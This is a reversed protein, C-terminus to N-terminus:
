GKGSRRSPLQRTDVLQRAVERLKLNHDQSYRRLVEFAQETSLNHREMLIGQAQGILKRTDLATNLHMEQMSSALAIAAHTAFISVYALDDRSFTVPENWYLNLAGLRGMDTDTLEAALLAGIGLGTAMPVWRPWRHDARLSHSALTAGHWSADYSPGEQLDSQLEDAKVVLDDSPAVTQLRSRSRVLTIGGHHAGLAARAHEVVQDATQEMSHASGLSQALDAFERPDLRFTTTRGSLTSTCHVGRPVVTDDM